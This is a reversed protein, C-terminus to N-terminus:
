GLLKQLMMLTYGKLYVYIVFHKSHSISNALFINLSVLMSEAGSRLSLKRM